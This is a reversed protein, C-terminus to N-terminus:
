LEEKNCSIYFYKRFIITIFLVIVLVIATIINAERSGNVIIHNFIYPSAFSVLLLSILSYISYFIINLIIIMIVPLKM